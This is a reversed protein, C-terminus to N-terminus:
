GGSGHWRGNATPGGCPPLDGGHAAGNVVGALDDKLIMQAVADDVGGPLAVLLGDIVQALGDIFIHFLADLAFPETEVLRAGKRIIANLFCCPYQCLQSIVNYYLMDNIHLIHTQFLIFM